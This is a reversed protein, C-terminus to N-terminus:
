HAKWAIKEHQLHRLSFMDVPHQAGSGPRWYAAMRSEVDVRFDEDILGRTPNKINLVLAM